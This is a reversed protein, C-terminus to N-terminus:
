FRVRVLAQTGNFNIEASSDFDDRDREADIRTYAQRIMVGVHEWPYWEFGLNADWIRGDVSGISKEFTGVDATLRFKENFAHAYNLGIKPAPLDESVSAELEVVEDRVSFTGELSANADVRVVGISIGFADKPKVVAWYTYAIDLVEVGLEGRVDAGVPFTENDFVIDREITRQGELTDDFYQIRLEHRDFPRWSLELFDLEGASSTDFDRDFDVTTGSNEVSGDASASAGIDSVFTGFSLTFRDLALTDEAAYAPTSLALFLPIIRKM